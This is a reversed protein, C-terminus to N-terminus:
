RRLTRLQGSGPYSVAGVTALSSFGASDVRRAWALLDHGTTDPVPNPLGIGVNMGVGTTMAPLGGALRDM